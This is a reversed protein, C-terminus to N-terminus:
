EIIYQIYEVKVDGSEHWCEHLLGPWEKHEKDKADLKDVLQKSAACSTVPDAGGHLILLPKDAPWLKYDQEFLKVGGLLPSVIARLYVHGDVLPDDATWKQVNVDSSIDKVSVTAYWPMDYYM